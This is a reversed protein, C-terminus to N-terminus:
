QQTIEQTFALSSVCELMYENGVIVGSIQDTGYTQIAQQIELKQRTYATGNDGIAPYNALYVTM